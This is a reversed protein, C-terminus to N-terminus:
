ATEGSPSSDKLFIDNFGALKFLKRLSPKANVVSVQGGLTRNIKLLLGFSSSDAYDVDSYDFVVSSIEEDTILPFIAKKILGVTHFDLSGRPKVVMREEEKMEITFSFGGM